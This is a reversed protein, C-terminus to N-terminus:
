LVSWIEIEQNRFDVIDGEELGELCAGIPTHLSVCAITEKQIYQSEMGVAIFFMGISTDVLSGEQVEDHSRLDLKQLIDLQKLVRTHQMAYKEKELQMMSRGTEYKDGASSKTEKNAEEQAYMMMEELRFLQKQLVQICLIQIKKKIASM